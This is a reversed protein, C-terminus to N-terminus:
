AFIAWATVTTVIGTLAAILWTLWKITRTMQELVDGQREARRRALEELFYNLGVHVNETAADHRRVLEDDSLRRLEEYTLPQTM